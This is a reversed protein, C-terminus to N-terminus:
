MFHHQCTCTASNENLSKSKEVLISIVQRHTNDCLGVEPGAKMYVVSTLPVRTDGSAPKNGATVHLGGDWYSLGM